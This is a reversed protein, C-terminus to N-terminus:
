NRPETQEPGRNGAHAPRLRRRQARRTGPPAPPRTGQQRRGLRLHSQRSALGGERGPLGHLPGRRGDQRGVAEPEFARLQERFDLNDVLKEGTLVCGFRVTAGTWHLHANKFVDLLWPSGHPRDGRLVIQSGARQLEYLRLNESVLIDGIAQHKESMGFAIGVMVVASPRIEAIAKGVSQQSGGLGSAGMESLVLWVRAGNVAGLDHYTKDGRPQIKASQGTHREFADLVARSEVRTVTVLLLNPEPKM